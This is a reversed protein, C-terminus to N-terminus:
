VGRAMWVVRGVLKLLTAEQEGIHQECYQPNDSRVWVGGKWDLQLRKPVVHQGRQIVYIGDEGVAQERTDVLLLDGEKVTPEMSDGRAAVLVLHTPELGEALLWDRCFALRGVADEAGLPAGGAGDLSGGYRPIFEFDGASASCQGFGADPFPGGGPRVPAEGSALWGVSVDAAKALMILKEVGPLSGELYKRVLSDSIGCKQAFRLVPQDGIAGRLRRAFAEGVSEQKTSDVRASDLREEGVVKSM